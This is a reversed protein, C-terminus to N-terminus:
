FGLYYDSGSYIIGGVIATPSTTTYEGVALVGEANVQMAPQLQNTATPVNIQFTGSIATNRSILFLSGNDTAASSSLTTASTWVAISYQEGGLVGSSTLAFSATGFLSGTAFLENFEARGIGTISGTIYLSGTITSNGILISSGTIFASGTTTNTGIVNLSNSVILSGTVQGNGILQWSGSISNSGTVNSTGIVTLSNSVILSGTVDVEGILNIDGIATFSSSVILSGTIQSPGILQNSGTIISSGSIISTGITTSTGIVNLSSSVNLSGTVDGVGILQWSGTILNSGSIISTGIVNLSNSVILSGTVEGDGVLNWSGTINNSGSVNSTGIVNLSSSVNFSGTVNGVGILEFSSSVILSGTIQVVGPNARLLDHRLGTGDGIVFLSIDNNPLNYTGIVTQNSGSAINNRGTVFNNDGVSQNATGSLLNASGNSSNATGSLLSYDGAYNRNIRGFIAMSSGAAVVHSEGFIISFNATTINNNVGGILANTASVTNNGQGAVISRLTNASIGNADGFILNNSGSVVNRDGAVISSKAESGIKNGSGLIFLSSPKQNIPPGLIEYTNPGYTLVAPNLEVSTSQSIYYFNTSGSYFGLRNYIIEKNNGAAPLAAPNIYSATAATSASLISNPGFPGYVNSGTIFSATLSNRAWSSTGYFEGDSGIYSLLSSTYDYFRVLDRTSPSEYVPSSTKYPHSVPLTNTVGFFKWALYGEVLVRDTESLISNYAIVEVVDVEGTGTLTDSSYGLYHGGIGPDFTTINLSGSSTGNNFFEYYGTRSLVASIHGGSGNGPMSVPYGPQQTTSFANISGSNNSGSNWLGIFAFTSDTGYVNYNNAKPAYVVFLSASNSSFLSDIGPSSFLYRSNNVRVAGVNGKSTIISATYYLPNSGQSDFNATLPNLSSSWIGVTDENNLSSSIYDNDLWVALGPLLDPTFPAPAGADKYWQSGSLHVISSSFNYTLQGSGSFASASNFQISNLPGGPTGGGGGGNLAFAATVAHSASLISNSGYPGYVGSATVFSATAANLAYSATFSQSLHALIWTFSYGM